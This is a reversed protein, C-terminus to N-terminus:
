RGRTTPNTAADTIRNMQNQGIRVAAGSVSASNLSRTQNVEHAHAPEPTPRPATPREPMLMGPRHGPGLVDEDRHAVANTQGRGQVEGIVPSAEPRSM